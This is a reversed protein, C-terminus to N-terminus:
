QGDGQMQVYALWINEEDCVPDVEVRQDISISTPTAKIIIHGCGTSPLTESVIYRARFHEMVRNVGADSISRMDSEFNESIVHPNTVIEYSPFYSVNKYPWSEIALSIAQRLLSKSYFTAEVASTPEYTAVLPVPSLTLMIRLAPNIARLLAFAGELEQTVEAVSANHFHHREPDYEGYGCGPAAPLALDSESDVWYETLGLTFIFLDAECLLKGVNQLHAADDARLWAMSGYSLVSPRLLNRFRGNPDLAVPAEVAREGSVRQLLQQLQRATYINGYRLSFMNPTEERINQEETEIRDECVLFNVGADRILTSIRAAFCSGASM